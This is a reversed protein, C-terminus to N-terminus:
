IKPDFDFEEEKCTLGFKSLEKIIPECVSGSFPGIVGKDKIVGDLILKASIAAPYGVTLAMASMGKEIGSKQMYSKIYKKKNTKPYFIEFYHFMIIFDKDNETM